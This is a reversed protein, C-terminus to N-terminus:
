QNSEGYEVRIRYLEPYKRETEKKCQEIFKCQKCTESIPSWGLTSTQCLVYGVEQNLLRKKSGEESHVYIYKAQPHEKRDIILNVLYERSLQASSLWLNEHYVIGKNINRLRQISAKGFIQKITWAERSKFAYSTCVCFDVLREKTVCGFEKAFMDLFKSVTSIAAGGQSFRFTPNVLRRQIETFVTITQKVLNESAM